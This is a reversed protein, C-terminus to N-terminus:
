QCKPLSATYAGSAYDNVKGSYSVSAGNTGLYETNIITPFCVANQGADQIVGGAPLPLTASATGFDIDTLRLRQYDGFFEGVPQVVKLTYGQSGVDTLLAMGEFVLYGNIYQEFDFRPVDSGLAPLDIYGFIARNTPTNPLIPINATDTLFDKAEYTLYPNLREFTGKLNEGQDVVQRNIRIELTNKM